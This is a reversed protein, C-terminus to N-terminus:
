WNENAEIMELLDSKQYGAKVEDFNNYFDEIEQRSFIPSKLASYDQGENVINWMISKYDGDISFLIQESGNDYAWFEYHRAFRAEAHNFFWERAQYDENWSTSHDRFTLLFGNRFDDVNVLNQEFKPIGWSERNEEFFDGADLRDCQMRIFAARTKAIEQDIHSLRDAFDLYVDVPEGSNNTRAAIITNSEEPFLLLPSTLSSIKTFYAAREM